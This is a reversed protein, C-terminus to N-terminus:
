APLLGRADLWSRANEADQEFWARTSGLRYTYGWSDMDAMLRASGVGPLQEALLIQLYCTADEEDVSDTADTHVAARKEPPLVILHGAEHLLSHVPTDDRVYVDCGIIGAEPEGWFSGPIAAGADVRHLRLGYRALLAAPADLGIDAVCLVDTSTPTATPATTM